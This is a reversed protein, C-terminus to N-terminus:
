KTETSDHQEQQVPGAAAPPDAQLKEKAAAAAAKAADEGDDGRLAKKFGRVANGLDPGMKTLKGTGFLLVVILLLIILHFPSFLDM